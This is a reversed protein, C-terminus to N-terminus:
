RRPPFGGEGPPLKRSWCSPGSASPSIKHTTPLYMVSATVHKLVAASRAHSALNLRLPLPTSSTLRIRNTSDALGVKFSASM